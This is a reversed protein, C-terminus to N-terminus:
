KKASVHVSEVQALLKIVRTRNDFEMGLAHVINHKDMLIVPHRTSARDLDPIVHLYSTTFVLESQRATAARVIKVEDSLFVEDGKGSIKGAQAFAAASLLFIIALIQLAKM